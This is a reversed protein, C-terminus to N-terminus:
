KLINAAISQNVKFSTKSRVFQSIIGKKYLAKKYSPYNNDYPFMVLALTPKKHNRRIFADLEKEFAQVNNFADLEIWEPEEILFDVGRSSEVM